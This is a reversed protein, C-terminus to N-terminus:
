IKDPYIYEEFKKRFMSQNKKPHFDIFLFEYNDGEGIAAEYVKYFTEDDIEGAVSEAVDELEGKDKTKFLILSTAQNRIVKNLGGTQAKFSQILFFLSVGISGGKALQGLHRSYTAFANLKRPKSYLLSGMADDILVAIRPKRGNWKHSPKLFQNDEDNFFQLLLDDNGTYKGSEIDRMLKNYKKIDELYVELDEAEQAVISKINDVLSLDDVDEFIHEVNLRSMIEKNSKLTPSVAIVYDYKLKEILNVVATTKGSARKGIAICVQHMKPLNDDTEYSGSESSPPTIEMGKIKKVTM